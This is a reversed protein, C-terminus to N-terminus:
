QKYKKKFQKMHERIRSNTEAIKKPDITTYMGKNLSEFNIKVRKSM